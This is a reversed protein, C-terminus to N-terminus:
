YISFYPLEHRAKNVANHEVQRGTVAPVAAGGDMPFFEFREAPRVAAVASVAAVNNQLDARLHM